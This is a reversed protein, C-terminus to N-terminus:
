NLATSPVTLNHAVASFGCGTKFSNKGGTRLSFFFSSGAFFSAGFCSADFAAALAGAGAAGLSSLEAAIVATPSWIRTSFSFSFASPKLPLFILSWSSILFNTACNCSIFSPAAAAGAVGAAAGAAAGATAAAGAAPPSASACIVATPSWIRTSFSFSFPSPKLPLFILSWSSILFNTACNCSNFDPAGAAGAAAGRGVGCAGAAPPPLMSACIVATPSSIRARFSFSFPSPKLPLFILSWSSILVNTACNVSNFACPPAPPVAGAFAGRGVGGAGAAPPPLMSACIVATPSSIRVSFSFSFPSPKLPLFILSWSSTLAKTALNVSSLALCHPSISTRFQMKM